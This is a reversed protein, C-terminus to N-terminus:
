LDLEGIGTDDTPPPEDGNRLRGISAHREVGVVEWEPYSEDPIGSPGCVSVSLFGEVEVGHFQALTGLDSRQLGISM